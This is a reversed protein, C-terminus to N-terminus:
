RVCNQPVELRPAKNQRINGPTFYFFIGPPNEFFYTRLWGEEKNPKKSSYGLILVTEHVGRITQETHIM